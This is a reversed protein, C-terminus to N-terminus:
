LVAEVVLNFGVWSDNPDDSMNFVDIRNKIPSYVCCLDAMASWDLRTVQMSIVKTINLPLIISKGHRKLNSYPPNIDDVEYKTNDISNYFIIKILNNNYIFYGSSPKDYISEGLILIDKM